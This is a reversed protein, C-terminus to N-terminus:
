RANCRRTQPENWIVYSEELICTLYTERLMAIIVSVWYLTLPLSFPLLFLPKAPPIGTMVPRGKVLKATLNGKVILYKSCKVLSVDVRSLLRRGSSLTCLLVRFM